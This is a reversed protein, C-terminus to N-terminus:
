SVDALVSALGTAPGAAVAQEILLAIATAAEASLKVHVAAQSVWPQIEAGEIGANACAASLQDVADPIGRKLATQESWPRLVCDAGIRGGRFLRAGTPTGMVVQDTAPWTEMVLLRKISGTYWQVAYQKGVEIEAIDM